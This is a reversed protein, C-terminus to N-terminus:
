REIRLIRSRAILPWLGALGAALLGALFLGDGLRGYPTVGTPRPLPADIVGM